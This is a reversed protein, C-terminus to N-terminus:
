HREEHQVTMAPHVRGMVRGMVRGQSRAARSCHVTQVHPVAQSSSGYSRVLPTRGSAPLASPLAWVSASMAYITPVLITRLTGRQYKIYLQGIKLMLCRM